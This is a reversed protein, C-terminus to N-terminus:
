ATPLAHGEEKCILKSWNDVGALDADPRATKLEKKAQELYTAMDGSLPSRQQKRYETLRDEVGSAAHSKVWAAVEEDSAGSTIVAKLADADVGLVQLFRQDGGCPYPTYDGLTGANLARVKDTLRALWPFGGLEEYPSRPFDKTLDKAQITPM